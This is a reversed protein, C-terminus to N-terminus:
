PAPHPTLDWKNSITWMSFSGDPKFTQDLRNWKVHGDVFLYNAGGNHRRDDLNSHSYGTIGPIHEWGPKSAGSAPNTFDTPNRPTAGYLYQVM